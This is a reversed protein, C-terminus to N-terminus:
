RDFHVEHLLLYNHLENRSIVGDRNHDIEDFFEEIGASSRQQALNHFQQIMNEHPSSGSIHLGHYNTRINNHSSSRYPADLKNEYAFDYQNNSFDPELSRLQMNNDRYQYQPKLLENEYIDYQNRLQRNPLNQPNQSLRENQPSPNNGRAIFQNQPSMQLSSDHYFHKPLSFQLYWDHSNLTNPQYQGPNEDYNQHYMKESPNQLGEPEHRYNSPPFKSQVVGSLRQNDYHNRYKPLPHHVASDQNAYAFGRHVYEAPYSEEYQRPQRPVNINDTYETRLHLTQPNVRTQENFKDEPNLRVHLEDDYGADSQYYTKSDSRRPYEAFNQLGSSESNRFGLGLPPMLVQPVRPRGESRDLFNGTHKNNSNYLRYGYSSYLNIFILLFYSLIFSKIGPLRETSVSSFCTFHTFHFIQTLFAFPYVMWLLISM